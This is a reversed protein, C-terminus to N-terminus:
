RSEFIGEVLAVGVAGRGKEMHAEIILGKAAGTSEAKRIRLM